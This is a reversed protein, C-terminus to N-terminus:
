DRGVPGYDIRLHYREELDTLKAALSDESVRQQLDRKVRPAAEEYDLQEPYLREYIRLIVWEEGIELPETLTPTGDPQPEFRLAAQTFQPFPAGATPELREEFDTGSADAVVESGAQAWPTGGRIREYTQWALDRRDAPFRIFGYGVRDPAVYEGEHEQWYAQVDRESVADRFVALTRDYYADLFLGDEKHRRRAVLDPDELAGARRAEEGLMWRTLRYDIQNVIRQEDGVTPWYELDIHYLTEIFQGITFEGGSWRVLPLAREEATFRHLPPELGPYDVVVGAAKEASLSDHMERFCRVVPGVNEEVVELAYQEQLSTLLQRMQRNRSVEDAFPRAAPLVDALERQRISDLVVLQWGHRGMDVPGGVQGPTTLEDFVLDGILPVIRPRSVWGIEGYVIREQQEDRTDYERGIQEFDAGAALRAHIERADTENRCVIQRTYREEQMARALSDVFAEPAALSDRVKRWHSQMVQKELWRNLIMRERLPLENNLYERTYRVLLEKKAVLDVFERRAEEADNAWHNPGHIRDYEAIIRSLRVSEGDLSIVVPDADRACGGPLMTWALAVVAV